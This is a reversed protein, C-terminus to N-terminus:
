KALCISRPLPRASESPWGPRGPLSACRYQDTQRPRTSSKRGIPAVRLRNSAASGPARGALDRGDPSWDAEVFTKSFGARHVERSPCGRLREWVRGTRRAGSPSRSSGRRPYPSSGRTPYNCAARSSTRRADCFDRVAAGGLLRHLHGDPRRPRVAGQRGRRAPLHPTQIYSDRGNTRDRPPGLRRSPRNRPPGCRHAAKAMEALATCRHKRGRRGRVRHIAVGPRLRSRTGVPVATGSEERPLPSRSARTRPQRQPRDGLSGAPGGEPDRGDGRRDIRRRVGAPGCADRLPRASRSSTAGEDAPEGQDARALHLRANRHRRGARNGDPPQLTGSAVIQGLKALGFDLIKVRGDSTLFLNEPKLDRHVIGETRPPSAMRWRVADDIAKRPSLTGGRFSWACRRARSYNKSSTPRARHTWPRLGTISSPQNRRSGPSKTSVGSVTPDASFSVPLVKIAVDRKLRDDRARYVEGM